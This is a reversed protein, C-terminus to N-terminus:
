GWSTIIGCCHQHLVLPAMLAATYVLIQILQIMLLKFATAGGAPGLLRVVISVLFLRLPVADNHYNYTFIVLIIIYYYLM